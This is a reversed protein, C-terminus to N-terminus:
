YTRKGVRRPRSAVVTAPLTIAVVLREVGITTYTSTATFTQATSTSDELISTSYVYGDTGSAAASTDTYETGTGWTVSQAAGPITQSLVGMVLKTGTAMTLSPGANASPSVATASTAGLFTGTGFELFEFVCTYNSGNHTTTVTDGGGGAATKYWFYLGSNGVASGGTPLTFGTPTTSTVAGAALVVLMRGATPTFPVGAVVTGSAPDVTHSTTGNRPAAIVVRNVWLTM